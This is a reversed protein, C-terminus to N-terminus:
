PAGNAVRISIHPARSPSSKGRSRDIGDAVADKDGEFATASRHRAAGIHFADIIKRKANYTVFAGGM